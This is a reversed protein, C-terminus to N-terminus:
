RCEVRHTAARYWPIEKGRCVVVCVAVCQLLSEHCRKAMTCQLVCHLVSCCVAVCIAVCQVVSCCLRM